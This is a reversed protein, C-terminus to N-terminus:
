EHKAWIWHGADVRLLQEAMRDLEAALAYERCGDPELAAVENAIQHIREGLSIGLDSM